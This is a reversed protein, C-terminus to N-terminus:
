QSNKSDKSDLYSPTPVKTYNWPDSTGGWKIDETEEGVINAQTFPNTTFSFDNYIPSGRGWNKKKINVLM